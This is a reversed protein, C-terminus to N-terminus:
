FIFGGHFMNTRDKFVIRFAATQRGPSETLGGRQTRGIQLVPTVHNSRQINNGTVISGGDHFRQHTKSNTRVFRLPDTLNNQDAQLHSGLLLRCGDAQQFM